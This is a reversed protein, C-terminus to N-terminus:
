VTGNGNTRISVHLTQCLYGIIMPITKCIKPPKSGVTVLFYERNYVDVFWRIDNTTSSFRFNPVEQLSLRKGMVMPEDMPMFYSLAERTLAIDKMKYRPKAM